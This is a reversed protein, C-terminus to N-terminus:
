IYLIFFRNYFKMRTYIPSLFHHYPPGLLIPFVCKSLLSSLFVISPVSLVFTTERGEGKETRSLWSPHHLETDAASIEHDSVVNREGGEQAGDGDREAARSGSVCQSRSM